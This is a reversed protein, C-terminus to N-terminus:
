GGRKRARLHRRSGKAKVPRGGGFAGGGGFDDHPAFNRPRPPRAEAENVRLPRGGLDYGNFRQVADKAEADNAFEVFAFGRPRGSERDLPVMVDVVQGAGSFLELLQERTTQFNLNGVFLKTTIVDEESPRGHGPVAARPNRRQV